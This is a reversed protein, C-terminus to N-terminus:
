GGQIVVRRIGLRLLAQSTLGLAVIWGIQGLLSQWVQQPTLVGLYIEVLANVQHPFPTLYCIQRFWDPLFRLPILFGSLFMNFTFMWRGFGRADPTWFAALNIMFRISFSVLWALVLALMFQLWQGPSQPFTWEFFLAYFLFIPGGRLILQVFARGADRALWYLYYNVPKLLDAAIEGSSVSDMLEYWSFLSLFMILGQTLGTYTVASSLSIGAVVTQQGYLAILIYARLVGFFFNTALGALTATRYTLQRQIALKVIEWYLRM